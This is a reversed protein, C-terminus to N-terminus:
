SVKLKELILRAYVPNIRRQKSGPKAQALWRAPTTSGVGLVTALEQYTMTHKAQRLWDLAKAQIQAKEDM